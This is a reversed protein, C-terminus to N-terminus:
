ELQLFIIIRVITENASGDELERYYETGISVLVAYKGSTVGLTEDPNIVTAFYTFYCFMFM